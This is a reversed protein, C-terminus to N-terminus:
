TGPPPSPLQPDDVLEIWLRDTEVFRRLRGDDERIEIVGNPLLRANGDRVARIFEGILYTEDPPLVLLQDYWPKM